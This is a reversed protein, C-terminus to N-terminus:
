DVQEFLVKATVTIEANGDIGLNTDFNDNGSDFAWQWYLTFPTASAGMNLAADEVVTFVGAVATIEQTMAADKYFKVPINQTNTVTFSFDATANVEGTNALNFTFSGKTGPAIVGTAVDTDTADTKTDIISDFLNFAITGTGGDKVLTAGDFSWEAVKVTDSGTVTSTYRAMTGSVLTLSLIAVFMTIIGLVFLRNKKM